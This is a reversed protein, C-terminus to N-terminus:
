LVHNVSLSVKSSRVPTNMFMSAIRDFHQPNASTVYVTRGTCQTLETDVTYSTLQQRLEDTVIKEQSVIQLNPYLFQLRKAVLAYHTCGLLITDIENHLVINNIHRQLFGIAEITLHEGHEILPVWIPCAESVVVMDPFFSRIKAEYIGANVTAITAVVGVNDTYCGIRRATPTIIEIINQKPFDIYIKEAEISATNCAIVVMDCGTSFLYSLAQKTYETIESLERNGYPARLNDGLYVYDLAPLAKQLGRLISLGGVGSDFVGIKVNM